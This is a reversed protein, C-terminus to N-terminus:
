HESASYSDNSKQVTNKLIKFIVSLTALLILIGALGCVFDKYRNKYQYYAHPTVMKECNKWSGTSPHRSYYRINGSQLNLLFYKRRKNQTKGFVLNDKVLISDIYPTDDCGDIDEIAYDHGHSDITWLNFRDNLHIGYYTGIWDEGRWERNVAFCFILLLFSTSLVGIIKKTIESM